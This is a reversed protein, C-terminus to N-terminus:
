ARVRECENERREIFERLDSILDKVKGAFVYIIM